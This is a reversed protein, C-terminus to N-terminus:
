DFNLVFEVVGKEIVAKLMGFVVCSKEDQVIIFVGKKRMELIGDSGDFGMGIMIIGMFVKGCVEVILSFFIDVLFKYSKIKEFDFVRIYFKGDIEEVVLYYGGKVIYICGGKIEEIDFVEKICKLIIFVFRDVFLKIFNLLMYQVVFILILFDKKLFKFMRELVFLGGIFIGIGVVKVLKVREIISKEIIFRDELLIIVGYFKLGEESKCEECVIILKKILEYKFEEFEDEFILKLIYDFVGVLLVEFIIYVGSCIYVSIMLIKVDKIEKIKRILEVGNMYLMEYDIIIVDFKFKRVKDFM